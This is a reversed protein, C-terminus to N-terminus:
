AREEREAGAAARPRPAGLTAPRGGRDESREGRGGAAARGRPQLLEAGRRRCRSGEDARAQPGRAAAAACWKPEHRAKTAEARILREKTATAAPGRADLCGGRLFKPRHPGARPRLGRRGFKQRTGEKVRARGGRHPACRKPKPWFLHTGTTRGSLPVTQSRHRPVPQRVAAPSQPTHRGPRDPTAIQSDPRTQRRRAGRRPPARRPGQSGQRHPRPRCVGVWGVEM